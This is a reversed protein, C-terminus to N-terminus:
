LRVAYSGDEPVSQDYMTTNSCYDINYFWENMGVRLTSTSFSKSLESTFLLEDITGANLCSMRTQVYRGDYKQQAGMADSYMYNYASAGDGQLDILQMPTQYVFAGRAHDYRM